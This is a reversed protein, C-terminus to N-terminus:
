VCATYTEIGLAVREQCSAPISKIKKVHELLKNLGLQNAVQISLGPRANIELMLPGLEADLVIDVGIYDMCTLDKCQACLSLITTWGPIELGKIDHGTDPHDQFIEENYVGALTKGTDLQIGVGIAGQHLNAKGDSLRTPLRLMSLVPIGRYVITRIDPVGQYSIQEFIPDFNVRYEILAKDPQGGLSYMGSLINSIHYGIDNLDLLVGNVKRFKNRRRGSIILIGEGGSGHSPKIVFDQHEGLLNNLQKIQHETDIVAYLDPVAINHQQALQKTLLKDDVLPYYKRQNSPLIYDGNRKNISLIGLEKLRKGPQLYHTWSM